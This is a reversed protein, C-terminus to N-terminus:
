ATASEDLEGCKEYIVEIKVKGPSTTHLLIDNFQPQEKWSKMKADKKDTVFPSLFFLYLTFKKFERKRGFKSGKEGLNVGKKFQYSM